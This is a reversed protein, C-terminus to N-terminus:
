DSPIGDGADRFSVDLNSVESHGFHEEGYVAM